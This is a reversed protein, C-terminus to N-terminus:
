RTLYYRRVVHIRNHGLLNSVKRLLSREIDTLANGHKKAIEIIRDNDIDSSIQAKLYEKLKLFAYAGRFGHTGRSEINLANCAQLVTNQMTRVSVSFIKNNGTKGTKNAITKPIKIPVPIKRPKGGKSINDTNNIIIANNKLDINHAKLNCAESIRLGATAQIKAITYKEESSHNGIWKLIQEKEQNTYRGGRSRDTSPPTEVTSTISSDYKSRKGTNLLCHDFKKICYKETRIYQPSREQDIKTQIYRNCHESRLKKINNIDNYKCVRNITQMVRKMDSYSYIYQDAVGEKKAQHRTAPIKNSKIHQKSMEPVTNQLVTKQIQYKISGKKSMKDDGGKL